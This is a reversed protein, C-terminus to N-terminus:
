EAAALDMAMANTGEYSCYLGEKRTKGVITEVAAGNEIIISRGSLAGKGMGYEFRVLGNGPKGEFLTSKVVASMFPIIVGHETSPMGIFQSIFVNMGQQVSGCTKRFAKATDSFYSGVVRFLERSFVVARMQPETYKGYANPFPISEYAGRGLADEHSDSRIYLPKGEFITEVLPWATENCWAGFATMSLGGHRLEESKWGQRAGSAIIGEELVNSRIVLNRRPFILGQGELMNSKELVNRSKAGWPGVGLVTIKAVKEPGLGFERVIRKARRGRPYVFADQM